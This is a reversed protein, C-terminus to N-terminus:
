ERVGEAPEELRAVDPGAVRPEGPVRTSHALPASPRGRCDKVETMTSGAAAPRDSGQARFHLM